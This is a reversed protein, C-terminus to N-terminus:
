EGRDRSAGTLEYLGYVMFPDHETVRRDSYASFSRADDVVAFLHHENLQHAYRKRAVPLADESWMNTLGSDLWQDAVDFGLRRWGADPKAATSAAALWSTVAIVAYSPLVRNTPEGLHVQLEDLRDWLIGNRSSPNRQVTNFGVRRDIMASVPFVPPWIAVDVSLPRAVDVRLLWRHSLPEYGSLARADFGVVREDLSIGDTM